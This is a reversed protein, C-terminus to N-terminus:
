LPPTLLFLRKCWTINEDQTANMKGWLGARAIVPM